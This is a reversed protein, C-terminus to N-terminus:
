ICPNLKNLSKFVEVMLFRLNRLHIGPSGDIDLLQSLTKDPEKYVIRLAKKHTNNILTNDSKSCFM